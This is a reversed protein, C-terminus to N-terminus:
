APVPYFPEPDLGTMAQEIYTILERQAIVNGEFFEIATEHQSDSHSRLRAVCGAVTLPEPDGPLQLVIQVHQGITMREETLFAVGGASFNLTRTEISSPGEDLATCSVVLEGDVRAFRRRDLNRRRSTM